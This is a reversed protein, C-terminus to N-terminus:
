LDNDLMTNWYENLEIAIDKSFGDVFICEPLDKKGQEQHKITSRQEKSDLNCLTIEYDLDTESEAKRTQEKKHQFLFLSYIYIIGILCM